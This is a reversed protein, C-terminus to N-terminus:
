YQLLPPIYLFDSHLLLFRLRNHHLFYLSVKYQM